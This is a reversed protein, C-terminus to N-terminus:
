VTAVLEAEDVDLELEAEDYYRWAAAPRIARAIIDRLRLRYKGELRDATAKLVAVVEAQTRGPEDNWKWIIEELHSANRDLLVNQRHAQEEATVCYTSTRMLTADLELLFPLPVDAAAERIGIGELVGQLACIYGREDRWEGQTWGRSVASAARRFHTYTPEM